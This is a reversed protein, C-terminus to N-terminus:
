IKHTNNVRNSLIYDKFYRGREVYSKFEGYSTAAPSLLVTDGKRVGYAAYDIAGALTSFSEHKIARLEEDSEIFDCFEEAADGYIAIRRAYRKLADKLPELPLRKSKGGLIINVPRDLGLLTTRTRSPSTDISSSIYDVGDIPIIECRESLGEFSSAVEQIRENDTYGITLAIASCLNAINHKEKRKLASIPIIPEGDLMIYGGVQTVTHETKYRKLIDFHTLESSLLCFTSLSAAERESVPDDLNLIGEDASRVLDLKCEKYEDFDKHWDLHNPTINTLLARGSSPLTYRLTFSSLELLFADSRIDASILPVGINGGTFLTPFRPQLLLSAISTVTSKGDSGSVLFLEKPKLSLFLDYDTMFESGEPILICERRVSPSPFIVDEFIGLFPADGGIMRLPIASGTDIIESHRLTIHVFDSVDGLANLVAKNTSGFGLLTVNVRRNLERAKKKIYESLRRRM